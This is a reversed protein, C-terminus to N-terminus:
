KGVREGRIAKLLREAQASLAQGRMAIARMEQRNLQLRAIVKSLTPPPTKPTTTM